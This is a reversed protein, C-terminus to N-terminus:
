TESGAISVVIAHPSYGLSELYERTDEISQNVQPPSDLGEAKLKCLDGNYNKYYVTGNM